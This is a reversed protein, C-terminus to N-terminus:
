QLKSPNNPYQKGPPGKRSKVTAAENFSDRTRFICALSAIKGRSLLRPRMSARFDCWKMQTGGMDKRSKVTAAENFGPHRVSAQPLRPPKGRSLLRPRMSAFDM